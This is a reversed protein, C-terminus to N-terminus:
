KLEGNYLFISEGKIFSLNNLILYKWNGNYKPLKSINKLMISQYLQSKQPDVIQGSEPSKNTASIFIYKPKTLNLYKLTIDQVTKLTRILTKYNTKIAQTESDNFTFSINTFENIDTDNIGIFSLPFEEMFVNVEEKEETMFSYHGKDKEEYSYSPINNLDGVENLIENLIAKLKLTKM